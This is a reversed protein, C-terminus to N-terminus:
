EASSDVSMDTAGVIDVIWVLASPEPAPGEKQIPVRRPQIVALRTGVTKGVLQLDAAGVTMPPKSWSSEFSDANGFPGVVARYAVADNATIERGAGKYLTVMSGETPVKAGDAFAVTPEEGPKGTVEVGEPLKEDTKTAKTSDSENITIDSASKLIDIVFVLTSGAPIPGSAQDGYGWKPPVVLEVRDGVHQTALGYKWGPIVADLSFSAPKGTDFSSEIETGDWLALKYNVLLYDSVGVEPGKGQTLTKVSIKEMPDGSGAAITPKEGFKGTVKPFEGKGSRDVEPAAPDPAEHSSSSGSQSSQNADETPSCAAVTVVLSLAVIASSVRRALTMNKM